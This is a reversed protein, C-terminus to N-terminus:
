GTYCVCVCLTRVETEPAPVFKYKCLITILALKAESLAFRMGICNRPGMGFPM